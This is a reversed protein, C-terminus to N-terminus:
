DETEVVAAQASPPALHYKERLVQTISNFKAEDFKQGFLKPLLGLKKLAHRRNM